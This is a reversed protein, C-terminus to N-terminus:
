VKFISKIINKLKKDFGLPSAEPLIGLYNKGSMLYHQYFQSTTIGWKKFFQWYGNNQKIRGTSIKAFHFVLSNGVGHFDRIGLKWLKMSIDPDSYMGPSYEISFGGIQDWLDIHVLSPPWTSGNWDPKTLESLKSLLKLEDFNEINNGFSSDAIVISNGTEVPEIMTSSMYFNINSKTKIRTKLESDWGPLVVMDDNLYYLFENKALRRALNMARCIGINNDSITHDIQQESLWKATGDTGANVHVIIQHNLKSNRKISDICLKLYQLNNWSPILISFGPIDINM